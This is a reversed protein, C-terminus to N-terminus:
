ADADNRVVDMPRIVSEIFEIFIESIRLTQYTDLADDEPHYGPLYPAVVQFCQNAFFKIQHEFSEPCDPFGHILYLFHGEGATYYYIENSKKLEM